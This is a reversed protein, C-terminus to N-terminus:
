KYCLIVIFLGCISMSLKYGWEVAPKGHLLLSNVMAEAHLFGLSISLDNRLLLIQSTVRLHSGLFPKPKRKLILIEKSPVDQICTAEACLLHNQIEIPWKSLGRLTIYKNTLRVWGDRSHRRGEVWSVLHTVEGLVTELYISFDTVTQHNHTDKAMLLSWGSARSIRPPPTRFGLDRKRSSLHTSQGQCPSKEM